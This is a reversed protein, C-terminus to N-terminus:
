DKLFFFGLKKCSKYKSRHLDAQPDKWLSRPVLSTIKQGEFFSSEVQCHLCLHSFYENIM